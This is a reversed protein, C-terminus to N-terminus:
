CKLFGRLPIFNTYIKSVTEAVLISANAGRCTEPFEEM